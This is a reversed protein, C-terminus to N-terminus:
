RDGKAEEPVRDRLYQVLRRAVQTAEDSGSAEAKTLAREAARLRDHILRQHDLVQITTTLM